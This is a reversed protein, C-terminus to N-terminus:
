KQLAGKADKFHTRGTITRGKAAEIEEITPDPGLDAIAQFSEQDLKHAGTSRLAAAAHVQTRTLEQAIDETLLALYAAQGATLEGKALRRTASAALAKVNALDKLAQAIDTSMPFLM